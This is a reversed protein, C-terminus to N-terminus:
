HATPATTSTPKRMAERYIPKIPEWTMTPNGRADVTIRYLRDPQVPLYVAKGGAVEVGKEDRYSKDEVLRWFNKWLESEFQSVQAQEKPSGRYINPIENPTDIPLGSAPTQNEGFMRTFLMIGHGRLPDNKMVFDDKFRISLGAVWAEKGKITFSRAPLPTGDRAQEVFLLTTSEVKDGKYQQDTVIMEAVRQEETLRTVIEQLQKKEEELRKIQMAPSSPNHWWWYGFSGAGVLVVLVALRFSTRLM